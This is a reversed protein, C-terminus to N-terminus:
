RAVVFAFAAGGAGIVGGVMDDIVDDFLSEAREARSISWFSLASIAAVASSALVFRPVVGRLDEVCSIALRGIANSSRM